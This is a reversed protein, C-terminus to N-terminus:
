KFLKKPTMLQSEKEDYDSKIKQIYDIIENM